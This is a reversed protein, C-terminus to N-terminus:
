YDVGGRRIAQLSRRQQVLYGMETLGHVPGPLSSPSASTFNAVFLKGRGQFFFLLVWPHLASTTDSRRVM